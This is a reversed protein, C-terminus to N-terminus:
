CKKIYIRNTSFKVNTEQLSDIIIQQDELRTDILLLKM